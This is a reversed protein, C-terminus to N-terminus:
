GEIVSPKDARNSPNATSRGLKTNIQELLDVIRNIKYYWCVVERLILFVVIAALIAFIAYGWGEDM